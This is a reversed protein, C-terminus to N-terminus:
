LRIIEAVRRQETARSPDPLGSVTWGHAQTLTNAVWETHGAYEVGEQGQSTLLCRDRTADVLGRM